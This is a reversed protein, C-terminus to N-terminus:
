YPTLQKVKTFGAPVEFIAPDIAEDSIEVIERSTTMETNHKEGTQFVQVSRTTTKESLVLGHLEPGSYRFEPRVEEAAQEGGVRLIILGGPRHSVPECTTVDPIDLYWADQIAESPQQGLEPAPIQKITTIYHRATHGFAPKTEGTDLTATGIVLNPPGKSWKRQTEQRVKAENEPSPLQTETYEHKDPNLAYLVRTDCRHIVIMKMPVVNRLPEFAPFETRRNTGQAYTIITREAPGPMGTVGTTQIRQVIKIGTQGYTCSALMLVAVLLRM